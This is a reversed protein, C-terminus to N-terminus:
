GWAGGQVYDVDDTDPIHQQVHGPTLGKHPALLSAGGMEPAAMGPRCSLAPSSPFAKCAGGHSSVVRGREGGM